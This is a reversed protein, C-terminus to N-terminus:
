VRARVRVKIKAPQGTSISLWNDVEADASGCM